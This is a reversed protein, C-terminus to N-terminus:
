KAQRDQEELLAIRRYTMEVLNTPKPLGDGGDNDLEQSLKKTPKFSDLLPLISDFGNKMALKELEVRQVNNIKKLEKEAVDLYAKIKADENAKITNELTTVKDELTKKEGKLTTVETSLNTLQTDKAKVANTIAAFLEDESSESTINQISLAMILRSTLGKMTTNNPNSIPAPPIAIAKNLLTPVNSYQYKNIVDATDEPLIDEEGSISDIFKLEKAKKANMWTTKRMMESIQKETMGTKAVYREIANNRLNEYLQKATEFDDLKEIVVPYSPDHIMYQLNKAGEVKDFYTSITTAASACLAGLTCSKSGSFRLVQNGIENADFMSGGGSNIYCDVDTVGGEILADVQRTFDASSNNWWNIEGVIKIYATNSRNTIEFLKNTKAM